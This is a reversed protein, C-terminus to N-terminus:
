VVQAAMLGQGWGEMEVTGINCTHVVMGQQMFTETLSKQDLKIIHVNNSNWIKKVKTGLLKTIKFKKVYIRYDQIQEKEPVSQHNNQRNDLKVSTFWLIKQKMNQQQQQQQM